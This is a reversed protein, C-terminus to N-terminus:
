GKAAREEARQVLARAMSSFGDELSGGFLLFALPSIAGGITDETHYRTRDDPLAELTQVREAHLIAPSLSTMGYRLLEGPRVERIQERQWLHFRMGSMWVRMDIPDGVKLSTRVEPTFPNWEPYRAFDTLVEWVTEPPADIEVTAAFTRSPM